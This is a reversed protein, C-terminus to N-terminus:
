SFTVFNNSYIKFFSSQPSTYATNVKNLSSFIELWNITTVTLTAVNGVIPLLSCDLSLILKQISLAENLAFSNAVL